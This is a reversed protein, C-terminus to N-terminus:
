DKYGTLYFGTDIFDVNSLGTFRFEERIRENIPIANGDDDLFEIENLEHSNINRIMEKLFLIESIRIKM